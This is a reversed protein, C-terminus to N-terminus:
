GRRFEDVLAVAEDRSSRALAAELRKVAPSVARLLPWPRFAHPPIARILRAHKAQEDM